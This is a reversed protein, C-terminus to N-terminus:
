HDSVVEIANALQEDVLAKLTSFQLRATRLQLAPTKSSPRM